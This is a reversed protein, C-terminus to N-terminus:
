IITQVVGSVATIIANDTWGLNFYFGTTRLESLGATQTAPNSIGTPQVGHSLQQGVRGFSNTVTANSTGDAVIGGARPRNTFQMPASGTGETSTSASANGTAVCNIIQSDNFFNSGVLGGSFAEAVTRNTATSLCEAIAGSIVNGFAASNKLETSAIRGVLGGTHSYANAERFSSVPAGQGLTTARAHGTVNGTAYCYAIDGFCNLGVLGGVFAHATAYVQPYMANINATIRISVTATVNSKSHSTEITGYLSMGVLGGIYATLSWWSDTDQTSAITNRHELDVTVTGASHSNKIVGSSMGVLGGIAPFNSEIAGVRNSTININGIASSNELLGGQMSAVIGGAMISGGDQLTSNTVTINFNVVHLNQITANYTFGFVGALMIDGYVDGFTPLGLQGNLLDHMDSTINWNSITFGRGDFNGQFTRTRDAQTSYHYGIPILIDNNYNINGGLAFYKGASYDEGEGVFRALLDMDAKTSIIYPSAETGQGGSFIVPEPSQWRAYLTMNANVRDTTFIWEDGGILSTFWGVFIEEGKTTVPASIFADLDVILDTVATGGDTDFQVRHKWIASVTISGTINNFTRDWEFFEFGIRTFTPAVADGGDAIQQVAQGSSLAGGNGNFTVTHVAVEIWEAVYSMNAVLATSAFTNALLQSGHNPHFWGSFTYGDRIPNNPLTIVENGNTEITHYLGEHTFLSIVFKQPAPPAVPTATETAIAGDGIANVARINFTYVTGNSLGTVVKPSTVSEWAGNDIQLEYRLVFSGGDSAPALWSLTVQGDGATATFNQPSAPTTSVIPATPTATKSVEPSNGNLNVARVRFIYTTGNNLGAFTHTLEESTKNVTTTWNNMTVQYWVVLESGDDSTGKNAPEDWTLTAQGNGEIVSFNLPVSPKSGNGSSEFGFCGTM